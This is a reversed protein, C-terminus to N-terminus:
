PRAARYVTRGAKITEVVRIDMLKDTPTTLPNTDLVILDALKGAELSGKTKGEFHQQAPWLTMAQLATYVPLRQQPGLVRGSRTVRNVASDLIRLSNPFTVPADSHISFPMKQAVLWGTPSINEAREPGAVSDRHWDGWYFTHMPYLSPFIELRKLDPVQDQRVYQGHILTTRRNTGPYSASAKAVTRILQDVAADGNTHVLLQWRHAYALNVLRQAEAENEFAPYGAYSAPQGEPPQFYPQTFWATKGQPSGDYTLKVGGVRLHKRYQLGPKLAGSLLAKENMELDAYSVVDLQLKGAKAAAQLQAVAGPDTRGDQVTTFGNAAYIDQAKQLQQLGQAATFQPLVSFVSGFFANEELVGDPEQSGPKRRIVGGRPDPTSASIGAKALAASNFVAVHGSQHIVILPLTTSIADLEAATPSRQESLQSDDYNFGIAVGYEKSTPSQAIFDRMVQQLAAISGVGGDPPPLLNASVAQLGVGSFHSHGDVFGPLLTKGHLNVQRTHPGVQKKAAALSGALVIRGNRVALAAVTHPQAGAMTLITGGHYITDAPTACAAGVSLALLSASALNKM